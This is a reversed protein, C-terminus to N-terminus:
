ATKIKTVMKKVEKLRKKSKRIHSIVNRRVKFQKVLEVKAITPLALPFIKEVGIGDSVKRVTMTKHVGSGHVNLVTGEFVQVREKEEGKPTIDRIKQHLRIVMGSRVDAAPIVTYAHEAM